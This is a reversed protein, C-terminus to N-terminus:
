TKQLSSLLTATPILYKRNDTAKPDISGNQPLPTPTDSRSICLSIQSGDLLTLISIRVSPQSM